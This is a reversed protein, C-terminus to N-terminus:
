RLVVNIYVAKKSRTADFYDLRRPTWYLPESSDVSKLKKNLGSDSSEEYTAM